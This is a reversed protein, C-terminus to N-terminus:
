PKQGAVIIVPYAFHVEDGVLHAGMGLTDRGVDERFIRRIKEDDSPNPFNARLQAEVEMEVKYWRTEIDQLGAARAMDILEDPTLVRTHSPDKLKEVHDYAKRKEAPIAADAVLLRGGPKCVRVMERLVADPELFHHFTYRTLVVSFSDDPFPVPSVDGVHWSVNQVGKESQVERARDIMAPTIDIGTVHAAKEAFACAVMGPGCAVDLVTDDPTVQGMEVMMALAHAHGLLKSFPVAQRTFQDIISSKHTEQSM